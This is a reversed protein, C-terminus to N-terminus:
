VCLSQPIIPRSCLNPQENNNTSEMKILEKLIEYQDYKSRERTGTLGRIGYKGLLNPQEAIV